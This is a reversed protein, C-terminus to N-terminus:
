LFQVFIVDFFYKLAGGRAEAPARQRRCVRMTPDMFATNLILSRKM